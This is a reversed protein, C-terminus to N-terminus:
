ILLRGDLDFEETNQIGVDKYNKHRPNLVINFEFSVISSPVVIAIKEKKFYELGKSETWEPYQLSNWDSDLNKVDLKSIYRELKRPIEISQIIYTPPTLEKPTHVLLELICLARSESTYLAPTGVPNWRGGFLEAGKGSLDYKYKRKTIRYVIM